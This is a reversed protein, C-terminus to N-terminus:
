RKRLVLYTNLTDSRGDSVFRAILEARSAVSGVLEDIEEESFSHCYRYAGAIGNWDLLFDNEDLEGLDLEGLARKHTDQAKARLGEDKLFQWFTVIVFGGPVVQYILYDLIKNRHDRLPMHHMFGFCVALNCQPLALSDSLVDGRQLVDLIDLHVYNVLTKQPVLSDCNDVAYYSLELSPLQSRLFTEFRLNGCALDLVTLNNGSNTLDKLILDFCRQWGPWTQGRAASFSDAHENYFATNIKNLRRATIEDM